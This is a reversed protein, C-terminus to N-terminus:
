KTIFKVIDDIFRQNVHGKTKYEENSPTGEGDIMLHTAKPYSTFTWNKQKEFHKRWIAQDKDTVQYDRLGQACLVPAKIDAAQQVADYRLLDKMYAKSMGGFFMKADSLEDIRRLDQQDQKYQEIAAQEEKTVNGDLKALYTVQEILLEDLARAPAAMMIYGACSDTKAAIRPILYGSLSHGLIYIKKGDIQTQQKMQNCAAVADAIVEQEVTDKLTFSEPYTYTRKDYRYSAIGQKALGWAIDQLPKNDYITEDMDNAGSGALLIVLPFSDGKVPTTLRGNLKKGDAIQLDVESERVGEPAKAAKKQSKYPKFFLGQIQGRENLSLQINTNQEEMRCPIMIITSGQYSQGYPQEAELLAGLSDNYGDLQKQFSKEQVAQSMQENYSYEKQLKDYRRQTLDKVFQMAMSSQKDDLVLETVENSQEKKDEEKGNCATMVFCLLFCVIIKINKKM